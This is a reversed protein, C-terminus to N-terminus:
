WKKWNLHWKWNKWLCKGIYSDKEQSNVWKTKFKLMTLAAIIADKADFVHSFRRKISSEIAYALGTTMTYLNPVEAKTKKVITTLTPKLTDYYCHDEGQLIDLGRSLPQLVACYEKLFALEKETFARLGISICLENLIKSPNEVVRAVADHYLNWSTPSPVLLKRKLKETVKDSALTSRSTKNWLATCKGFSSWYVSKSPSCSLLHKDVDTSAVLNLTHSACHQHPPLEYEIQTLDDEENPYPIIADNLDM